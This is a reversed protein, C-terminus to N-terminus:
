DPPAHGTAVCLSRIQTLVTELADGPKMAQLDEPSPFPRHDEPLELTDPRSSRGHLLGNRFDLLRTFDQWEEGGLDPVRLGLGRKVLEKPVKEVPGPDNTELWGPLLRQHDPFPREDRGSGGRACIRVSVVRRARRRIHDRSPSSPTRVEGNGGECRHVVGAGMSVDEVFNSHGHAGAKTVPIPRIIPELNKSGCDPCTTPAVPEESVSNYGCEPCKVESM